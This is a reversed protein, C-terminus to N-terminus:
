YPKQLSLMFSGAELKSKSSPNVGSRGYVILLEFGEWVEKRVKALWDEKGRQVEESTLFNELRESSARM